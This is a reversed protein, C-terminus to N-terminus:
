NCTQTFLSGSSTEILKYAGNNFIENIMPTENIWYEGSSSDYIYIAGGLIAILNLDESLPFGYSSWGNELSTSLNVKREVRNITASYWSLSGGEEHTSETYLFLRNESGWWFFIQDVNNEDLNAKRVVQDQISILIIEGASKTYGYDTVEKEFVSAAITISDPSWKIEFIDKQSLFQTVQNKEGTNTDYIYVQTIGNVDFDTFSFYRSDPSWALKTVFAGGYETLKISPHVPMSTIAVIKVDQNSADAYSQGMAGSAEKFAVWDGDPSISPLYHFNPSDDDFHIEENKIVNGQFNITQIQIDNSYVWVSIFECGNTSLTLNGYHNIISSKVLLDKGLGFIIDEMNSRNDTSVFLSPMNIFDQTQTEGVSPNATPSSTSQNVEM